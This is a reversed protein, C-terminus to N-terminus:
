AVDGGRLRRNSPPVPRPVVALPGVGTAIEPPPPPPAAVGAAASETCALRWAMVARDRASFQLAGQRRRAAASVEDFAALAHAQAVDLGHRCGAQWGRYYAYAGVLVLVSVFVWAVVPAPIEPVAALPFLALLRM